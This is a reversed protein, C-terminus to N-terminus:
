DETLPIQDQQWGLIQYRGSVGHLRVLARRAFRSDNGGPAGPASSAIALITLAGQLPLRRTSARDGADLEAFKLLEASATLLNIHASRSHVTVFDKLRDFIEVTVGPIQLLEEIAEFPADKAGHFLGLALYDDNEAGGPLPASDADRYDTIRNVLDNAEDAKIGLNTMLTALIAMNGANLDIKGREDWVRVQVEQDDVVISSLAGWREPRLEEDASVFLYLVNHVAADARMKAQASTLTAITDRTMSQFNRLVAGAVVALLVTTWLVLLLAM